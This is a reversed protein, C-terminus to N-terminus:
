LDILDVSVVGLESLVALIESVLEGNSGEDFYLVFDLSDLPRISIRSELAAKLKEPHKLPANNILLEGSHALLITIVKDSKPDIAKSHIGKLLLTIVKQKPSFFQEFHDCSWPEGLEKGIQAKVSAYYNPFNSNDASGLIKSLKKNKISAQQELLYGFITQSDADAGMFALSEPSYLDCYKNVSQKFNDDSCSNVAILLISFLSLKRLRRFMNLSM